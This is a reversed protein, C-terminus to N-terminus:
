EPRNPVGWDRVKLLLRVEFTAEHLAGDPDFWMCSAASGALSEVSMIPGGSHLQVLDGESIEADGPESSM